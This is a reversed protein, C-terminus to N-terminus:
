REKEQENLNEDISLEINKITEESSQFINMFWFYLKKRDMIRSREFEDLEDAEMLVRNMDKIKDELDKLIIQMAESDALKKKMKAKQLDKEWDLIQQKDSAFASDTFKNKLQEIKNM